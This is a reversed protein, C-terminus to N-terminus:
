YGFRDLTLSAGIPDFRHFFLTAHRTPSPLFPEPQTHFRSEFHTLNSLTGTPDSLWSIQCEIWPTLHSFTLLMDNTQNRFGCM